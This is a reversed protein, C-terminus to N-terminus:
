EKGHPSSLRAQAFHCVPCGSSVLKRAEGAAPARADKTRTTGPHVAGDLVHHATDVAPHLDTGEFLGGGIVSSPTLAPTTTASDM